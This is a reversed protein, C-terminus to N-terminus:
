EQNAWKDFDLIVDAKKAAETFPARLLNTDFASSDLFLTGEANDEDSSLAIVIFELFGTQTSADLWLRTFESRGGWEFEKLFEIYGESNRLVLWSVDGEDPEKATTILSWDGSWLGTDYNGIANVILEPASLVGNLFDKSVETLDLSM